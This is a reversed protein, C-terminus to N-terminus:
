DLINGSKHTCFDMLQDFGLAKMVSLLQQADGDLLDNVHINFYGAIILDGTCNNLKNALFDVFETVFKSIMHQLKPSPSPQYLALLSLTMNCGLIERHAHKFTHAHGKELLNSDLTDKLILALGGGRSRTERNAVSIIYGDM